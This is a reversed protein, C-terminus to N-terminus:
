LEFAVLVSRYTVLTICWLLCRSVFALVTAEMNPRADRRVSTTRLEDLPERTSGGVRRSTDLETTNSRWGRGAWARRKSDV